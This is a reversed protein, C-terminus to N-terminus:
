QAALVVVVPEGRVVAGDADLHELVRDLVIGIVGERM